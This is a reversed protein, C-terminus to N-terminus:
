QATFVGLGAHAPIAADKVQGSGGCATPDRDFEVTGVPSRTSHKVAVVDSVMTAAVIGEAEIQRIEREGATRIHQQDAHICGQAVAPKVLTGSDVPMDPQDLGRWQM